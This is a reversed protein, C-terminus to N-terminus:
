VWAGWNDVLPIDEAQFFEKNKKQVFKSLVAIDGANRYNLYAIIDYPKCRGTICYFDHSGYILANIRGVNIARDRTLAWTHANRMTKKCNGYFVPLYGDKDLLSILKPNDVTDHNNVKTVEALIEPSFFDNIWERGKLINIDSLLDTYTQYLYRSPIHKWVYNFWFLRTDRSLNGVHESILSGFSYEDNMNKCDDLMSGLIEMFLKEGYGGYM